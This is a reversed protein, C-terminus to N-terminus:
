HADKDAKHLIIIDSFLKEGWLSKYKDRQNANNENEWYHPQMHWMIRVATDIVTNARESAKYFLSQYASIYQHNYYHAEDTPEGKSNQFVQTFPKGCDHLMAATTMMDYYDLNESGRFYFPLNFLTDIAHQGLTLDHHKNKQDYNITKFLEGIPYGYYNAMEEDFYSVIVENWGEYLDPINFKYYMKKIVEEPVKRKRQSNNKLCEEYPTAVLVCVKKCPINKLEQLFVMRQKYSVNTADYICSKGNKLDHKMRDHLTKFVLDNVQQNNVNKTLEIRIDDSSHINADYRVALEKAKTSKGSAPLGCMMICTPKNM